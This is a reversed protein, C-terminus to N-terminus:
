ENIIELETTMKKKSKDPNLVVTESRTWDRIEGSWRLPNKSQEKGYVKTRQALVEVDQGTHRQVPTVFKLASHKHVTNYWIVFELTWERAQVIGSFGEVPYAPRYKLTRFLSESYANDNSVRPRSYSPEIGLRELTVRLTSSRQIAGNDAHLVHSSCLPGESLSARKMLESALEGCEKEHVEWGVIKRSFVDVIMYLYYFMGRVPSKLWTVDWSWCQNPGTTVVEAPKARQHRSQGRGRDRQQNAERLVRYYSSESGVYVGDDALDPVIQSPPASQYEPRSCVEIIKEREAEDLKNAPTPRLAHPRKDEQVVGGEQWRGYTSM